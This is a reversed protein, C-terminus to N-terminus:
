NQIKLFKNKCIDRYLEYDLFNNLIKLSEQPDTIFVTKKYFGELILGQIFYTGLTNKQNKQNEHSSVKIKLFESNVNELISHVAISGLIGKEM